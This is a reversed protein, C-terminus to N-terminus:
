LWKGIPKLCIVRRGFCVRLYRFLKLKNIYSSFVNTNEQNKHSIVIIRYYYLSKYIM